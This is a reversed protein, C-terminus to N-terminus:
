KYIWGKNTEYKYEVEDCLIDRYQEVCDLWTDIENLNTTLSQTRISHHSANLFRKYHSSPQKLQKMRKNVYRICYEIYNINKTHRLPMLFFVLYHPEEPIWNQQIGYLCLEVAYKDTEASNTQIHRHFQDYYLIGELCTEKNKKWYHHPKNIKSMTSKITDMSTSDHNGLFWWKQYGDGEPYWTDLIINNM